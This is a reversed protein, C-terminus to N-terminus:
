LRFHQVVSKWTSWALLCTITTLAVALALANLKPPPAEELVSGFAGRDGKAARDM